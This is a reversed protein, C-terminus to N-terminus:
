HKGEVLGVSDHGVVPRGLHILELEDYPLYKSM